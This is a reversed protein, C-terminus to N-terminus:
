RDPHRLSQLISEAIRDSLQTSAAGVTREAAGQAAAVAAALVADRWEVSQRTQEAMWRAQEDRLAALGAELTALRAELDAAPRDPSASRADQIATDVAAALPEIATALAAAPTEGGAPPDALFEPAVPPQTYDPAPPPPPEAAGLLAVIQDLTVPKQLVAAAGAALVSDIFGPPEDTVCVVVPVGRGNIPVSLSPLLREPEIDPLRYDVVILDPRQSQLSALGDAFTPVALPRWDLQRLYHSLVFCASTSDDIILALPQTM